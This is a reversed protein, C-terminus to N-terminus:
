VLLRNQIEFEVRRLDVGSTSDYTVIYNDWPVINMSAYLQAKKFQREIYTKDSTLGQHEWYFLKGDPRRIIFDPVLTLGNCHLVQEYRFPLNYQYLKEAILVESKSRVKLGRSTIQKLEEPKFTSREYVAAWEDAEEPTIADLITKEPLHPYKAMLEAVAKDTSFESLRPLAYDMVEKNARLVALEKKNIEKRILAKLTEEDRTLSHRYRKRKKYYDQVYYYKGDHFEERFGGDPSQKLKDEVIKIKKNTTTSTEKLYHQLDM